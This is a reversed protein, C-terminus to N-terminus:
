PRRRRRRRYGQLKELFWLWHAGIIPGRELLYLVLVLLLTAAPGLVYLSTSIMLTARKSPLVTLLRGDLPPIKGVM